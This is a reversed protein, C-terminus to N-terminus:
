CYGNFLRSRVCNRRGTEQLARHAPILTPSVFASMKYADSFMEDGSIIDTYLLM